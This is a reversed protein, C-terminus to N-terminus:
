LHGDTRLENLYQHITTDQVQHFPVFFSPDIERGQNRKEVFNRETRSWYHHIRVQDPKLTRAGFGPSIKKAIHVLCFEVAEPRHISKVLKNWPHDDNSRWTLKETLLEGPRLDEVGSTGFVRWEISVTGRKNKEAQDLLAYFSKAGKVPVIFEDLDIMAVWKAKGLARTRLCDNYAGLQAASWPADMFAGEALHSPDSSDWDILEVIGQHIYPELIKQYQDTSENNYLYFHDVKLVNRHYDIWEKLWPAENKFMACIAMRYIHHSSSCSM